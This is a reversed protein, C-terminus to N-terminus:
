PRQIALKPDAASALQGQTVGPGVDPTTDHRRGTWRVGVPVMRRHRVPSRPGERFPRAPDDEAARHDEEHDQQHDHDDRSLRSRRDMRRLDARPRSGHGQTPSTDASPKTATATRTAPFRPIARSSATTAATCARGTGIPAQSAIVARPPDDEDRDRDRGTPGSTAAEPYLKGDLCESSLAAVYLSMARTAHRLRSGSATRRSARTRPTPSGNGM